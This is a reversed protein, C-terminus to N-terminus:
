REIGKDKKPEHTAIFHKTEGEKNYTKLSVPHGKELATKAYRDAPILAVGKNDDTKFVCYNRGEIEVVQKLQGTHSDGPALTLPKAKHRQAIQQCHEKLDVQSLVAPEVFYRQEGDKEYTKLDVRGQSQQAKQAARDAPILAVKGSAQSQFVCYNRGEIPVEQVVRGKHQDGPSLQLPETRYVKALRESHQALEDKTLVPASIFQRQEGDKEYIRLNIRKEKHLAEVTKRDSPILALRSSEDDQFVSYPRGEIQIEQLVKGNRVDGPALPLPEERYIRAVRKSHEELEPPALVPASIFQRQDGAKEYPKLNVRRGTQVAEKTKKDAPTLAIFGEDAKFVAYSRGKLEIEEVFRGNHNQDPVLREARVGHRAAAEKCHPELETQSLVTASLYHRQEGDKETTKLQIREGSELAEKAKRDGPILAVKGSAEEQFVCYTRGEIPIEQVVRGQHSAGHPLDLPAARYIQAVQDSYKKTEATSLQPGSIFYRQQGEKEYAKINIRKGSEAAERLKQTQELLAVQNDDTKFVCYVRANITITQAVRGNHSEGPSLQIPTAQHKQALDDCLARHSAQTLKPPAVFYRTQGNQEYRRLNVRQDSDLAAKTKRDSPILAVHTKEDTRFVSYQRGEIEIEREFRGNYDEGVALNLPQARLEPAVRQTQQSLEERSLTPASIFHRRAGESEFTQINLREDKRAAATVFKDAQILAVENRDTKFAFYTGSELEVKELLRGNHSSGAALTIPEAGHKEAYLRCQDALEKERLEPYSPQKGDFTVKLEAELFAKRDKLRDRLENIVTGRAYRPDAAFEIANPHDLVTPGVYHVAHALRKSSRLADVGKAADKGIEIISGPAAANALANDDDLYYTNGDIGDLVLFQRGTHDDALGRYTVRALLTTEPREFRWDDPRKRGAAHLRAIIDERQGLKTLSAKFGEDFVWQKKTQVVLGIGALYELRKQFLMKEDPDRGPIKRHHLRRAKDLERLLQADLSTFRLKEVERRKTERIQEPSREGLARTAIEQARNRIGHSLYNPKIWLDKDLKPGHKGRLVIHVHPNDTNTHVVAVWDLETKLDTAVKAMVETAYAELDLLHGNEPSLILRFQHKDDKCREHFADADPRSNPDPGFLEAEKGPGAAGDRLLYNLHAKAKSLGSGGLKVSSAKVIVRQSRDPSTAVHRGRSSPTVRRMANYSQTATATRSAGLRARFAELDDLYDAMLGGLFGGFGPLLM